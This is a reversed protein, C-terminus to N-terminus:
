RRAEAGTRLSPERRTPLEGFMLCSGHLGAVAAVLWSLLRGIVLCRELATSHVPLAADM